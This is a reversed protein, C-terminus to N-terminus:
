WNKTAWRSTVLSRVGANYQITNQESSISNQNNLTQSTLEVIPWPRAMNYSDSSGPCPQYYREHQSTYYLFNSVLYFGKSPCLYYLGIPATRIFNRIIETKYGGDIYIGASITDRGSERQIFKPNIVNEIYNERIEAFATESESYRPLNSIWIAGGDTQLSMSRIIKNNSMNTKEGLFVSIGYYPANIINNFHIIVNRHNNEGVRIPVGTYEHGVNKLQNDEITINEVKSYDVTSGTNNWIMVGFSSIDQFMNSYIMLNKTTGAVRLAGGSLALFRSNIIQVDSTNELYVAAPDEYYQVARRKGIEPDYIMTHPQGSFRGIYGVQQPGALASNTSKEGNAIKGYANSYAKQQYDTMFFTVDQITLSPASNKGIIVMIEDSNGPIWVPKSAINFGVPPIVFLEGSQPSYFWEGPQDLFRLSNELWYAHGRTNKEVFLGHSAGSVAYGSSYFVSQDEPTFATFFFTEREPGKPTIVYGNSTEQINEMRLKTIAGDLPIVIEPDDTIDSPYLMRRNSANQDPNLPFDILINRNPSNFNIVRPYSSTDVSANPFRARQGRTLGFSVAIPAKNITKRYVNTKGFLQVPQWDTLKIAPTIISSGNANGELQIHGRVDSSSNDAILGLPKQIVHMGSELLLRVKQGQKAFATAEDWAANLNNGAAVVIERDYLVTATTTSNFLSLSILLAILIFLALINRFLFTSFNM